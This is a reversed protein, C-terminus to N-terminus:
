FNGSSGITEELSTVNNEIKQVIDKMAQNQNGLIEVDKLMDAYDTDLIGMLEDIEKQAIAMEAGLEDKYKDMDIPEPCSAILHKRTSLSRRQLTSLDQIMQLISLKMGSSSEGLPPIPPVSKRVNFGEAVKNHIVPTSRSRGLQLMEIRETFPLVEIGPTQLYRSYMGSKWTPPPRGFPSLYTPDFFGKRQLSHSRRCTTPKEHYSRSHELKETPNPM